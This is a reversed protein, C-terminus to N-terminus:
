ALPSSGLQSSDLVFKGGYSIAVLPPWVPWTFQQPVTQIQTPASLLNLIAYDRDIERTLRVTMDMRNVWQLNVLDPVSLIEDADIVNINAARLAARNQWVYLGDRLLKANSAANPGYFSALIELTEWRLMRTSGDGAPNHQQYPYDQAIRRMVGIACWDTTVSPQNPENLQWRPRVLMGDMGTVGVVVQQLLQMLADGEVPAPTPAPALYGGTASTNPV